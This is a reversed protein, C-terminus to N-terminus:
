DVVKPVLFIKKTFELIHEDNSYGLLFHLLTIYHREHAGETSITIRLLMEEVMIEVDSPSCFAFDRHYWVLIFTLKMICERNGKERCYSLKERVHLEDFPFSEVVFNDNKKNFLPIDWPRGYMSCALFFISAVVLNMNDEGFHEVFALETVHDLLGPIRHVFFRVLWSSTSHLAVKTISAPTVRSQIGTSFDRNLSFPLTCVYYLRSFYFPVFIALVAVLIAQKYEQFLPWAKDIMIALQFTRRQEYSDETIYYHAVISFCRRLFLSASHPTLSVAFTGGFHSM